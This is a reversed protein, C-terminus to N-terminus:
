IGLRDMGYVSSWERTEVASQNALLFLVYCFHLDVVSCIAFSRAYAHPHTINFLNHSVVVVEEAATAAPHSILVFM